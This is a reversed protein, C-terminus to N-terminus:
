VTKRINLKLRDWPKYNIIKGELFIQYNNYYFIFSSIDKPIIKIGSETEIYFVNKTEDIIKGYLGKLSKIKSDYVEIYMGIFERNIFDKNM